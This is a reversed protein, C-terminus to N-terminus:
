TSFFMLRHDQPRYTPVNHTGQLLLARERLSRRSAIRKVNSSCHLLSLPRPSSLCRGLCCWLSVCVFICKTTTNRVKEDIEAKWRPVTEFSASRGVDYVLVAGSAEKYYARAISGFRDQLAVLSADVPHHIALGVSTYLALTDSM